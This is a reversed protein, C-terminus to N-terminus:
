WEWRGTGSRVALVRVAGEQDLTSVAAGGAASGPEVSVETTLLVRRNVPIMATVRQELVAAAFSPAALISVSRSIGLGMKRDVQGALETDFLRLVIRADPNHGRAVLGAELNAVDDSTVAIVARCRQVQASRLTEDLTADGIVVAAGLRRATAVTSRDENREVAVVPMGRQRLTQVVKVGVNGLGCVVIHSSLKGRVGGLVRVLRAGVLVVVVLGLLQVAAAAIRLPLPQSELNLNPSGTATVLSIADYWGFRGAFLLTTVLALGAFAALVLRLRRDILQRAAALAGFAHRARQRRSAAGAPALVVNGAPPLLTTRSGSTDALVAVPVGSVAGRPGAALVRGAVEVYQVGSEGMAASVFAPAAMGSASLAVGNGFLRELHQGLGSNFMRLVIRLGPNLEEAALATQINGVDDEHVIAIARATAVGARRLLHVHPSVGVVLEAGRAAIESGVENDASPVVAVVREDLRRLEEVLRVALSDDGCVVIHGTRRSGAPRSMIAIRPAPKRGSSVGAPHFPTRRLARSEGPRRLESPQFMAVERAFCAAAFRRPLASGQPSGSPLTMILAPSVAQTSADLASTSSM